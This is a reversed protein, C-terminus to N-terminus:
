TGIQIKDGQKCKKMKIKARKRVSEDKIHEVDRFGAREWTKFNDITQRTGEDYFENKIGFSDRTGHIGPVSDPRRMGGCQCIMKGDGNEEKGCTVCFYKINIM